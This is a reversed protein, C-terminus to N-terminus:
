GSPRQSKAKRLDQIVTEKEPRNRLVYAPHYTPIVDMEPVLYSSYISGREKTIGKAGTFAWLATAGLAITIKPKVTQLEDALRELEPLFEKKLYLGNYPRLDRCFYINKELAEAPRVFFHKVKNNPPRVLFVNTVYCRSRDIDAAVLMEDLLKGAQGVLPIPPDHEVENKGPAEGVIVIDCEELPIEPIQPGIRLLEM